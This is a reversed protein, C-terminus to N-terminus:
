QMFHHDLKIQGYFYGYDHMIKLTKSHLAVIQIRHKQPKAPPQNAQPENESSTTCRGACLRDNEPVRFISTWFNAIYLKSRCYINAM